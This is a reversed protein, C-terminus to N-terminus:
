FRIGSRTPYLTFVEYFGDTYITGHAASPVFSGMYNRGECDPLLSPNDYLPINDFPDSTHIGAWLIIKLKVMPGSSCDSYASIGYSDSYYKDVHGDWTTYGYSFTYDYGRLVGLSDRVPVSNWNGYVFFKYNASCIIDNSGICDMEEYLSTYCLVSSPSHGGNGGGNGGPESRTLAMPNAKPKDPILINYLI